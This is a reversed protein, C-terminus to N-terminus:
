LSTNLPGDANAAYETKADDATETLLTLSQM